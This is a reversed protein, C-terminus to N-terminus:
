EAVLIQECTLIVEINGTASFNGGTPTIVVVRDSGTSAIRAGSAVSANAATSTVTALGAPTGSWGVTYGTLGGASGISSLNKASAATVDFGSPIKMLLTISAAGATPASTVRQTWTDRRLGNIVESVMGNAVDNIRVRGLNGATSAAGLRIRNKLGGVNSYINRWGYVTVDWNISDVFTAGEAVAMGRIDQVQTHQKLRYVIKIDHGTGTFYSGYFADGAIDNVVAEVNLRINKAAPNGVSGFVKNGIGGATKGAATATDIGVGSLIAVDEPDDIWRIGTFLSQSLSSDYEFYIEGITFRGKKTIDGFGDPRLSMAYDIRSRKDTWGLKYSNCNGSAPNRRVTPDAHTTVWVGYDLARGIRMYGGWDQNNYILHPPPTYDNVGGMNAGAPGMVDSYRRSILDGSIQLVDFPGTIGMISGDLEISDAFLSSALLATKDSSNAAPTTVANHGPKYQAQTRIAVPCFQSATANAPVSLTLKGLIKLNVSGALNLTSCFAAPGYHMPEPAGSPTPLVNGFEAVMRAGLRRYVSTFDTAYRGTSYDLAADLGPGIYTLRPNTLTYSGHLFLLTPILEHRCLINGSPGWEAVLGNPVNIEFSGGTTDVLAPVDILLTKSQAVCEIMARQVQDRQNLTGTLDSLYGSLSVAGSTSPTPDGAVVQYDCQGTTSLTITTDVAQPGYVVFGAGISTSADERAASSGTVTEVGSLNRLKLSNGAAVPFRIAGNGSYLITM